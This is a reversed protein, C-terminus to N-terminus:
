EQEDSPTMGLSHDAVSFYCDQPNPSHDENFLYAFAGNRSPMWPEGHSQDKFSEFPNVFAFYKAGRKLLYPLTM